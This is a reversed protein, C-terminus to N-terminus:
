FKYDIHTTQTKKGHQLNCCAREWCRGGDPFWECVRLFVSAPSGRLSRCVASCGATHRGRWGPRLWRGPLCCPLNIQPGWSRRSSRLISRKNRQRWWTVYWSFIRVVARNETDMSPRLSPTYWHSESSIRMAPTARTCTGHMEFWQKVMEQSLWSKNATKFFSFTYLYDSMFCLFSFAGRLSFSALESINQPQCFSMWSTFHIQTNLDCYAVKSINVWSLSLSSFLLTHVCSVSEDGKDASCKRM